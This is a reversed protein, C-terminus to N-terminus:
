SVFLKIEKREVDIFGTLELEQNPLFGRKYNGTAEINYYNPKIGISGDLNFDLESAIHEALSMIKFKTYGLEENLNKIESIFKAHHDPDESYDIDIITKALTVKDKFYVGKMTVDKRFEPHKLSLMVLQNNICSGDTLDKWQFNAELSKSEEDEKRKWDVNVGTDLSDSKLIYNGGVSLNKSPYALQFKINQGEASDKSNNVLKFNYGLWIDEALEIKSSQYIQFEDSSYDSIWLITRNPHIAKFKYKQENDRIEVTFEGTINFRNEKSLDFLEFHKNSQFNHNKIFLKM